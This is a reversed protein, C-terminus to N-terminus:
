EAHGAKDAAEERKPPPPLHATASEIKKMIAPMAQLLEPTFAQMGQMIEPEVMLLMSKEAYAKGSPTAFFAQMDTLEQVSFSRAYITVLSQRVRPELRELIPTMEAMMVNMTIKTRERFHPDAKAAIQGISDSGAAEAAKGSPDVARAIDAAPMDIMSDMMGDVMKSLSGTMMRRYTGLPWVQEVVARALSQQAASQSVSQQAIAPSPLAVLLVALLVRKM